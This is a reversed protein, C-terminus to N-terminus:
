PTGEQFLSCDTPTRAAAVSADALAARHTSPLNPAGSLTRLLSVEACAAAEDDDALGSAIRSDAASAHGDGLLVVAAAFHAARPSLTSAPCGVAPTVLCADARARAARDALDGCGDGACRAARDYSAVAGAYRDPGALREAAGEVLAAHSGIPGPDSSALGAVATRAADANGALVADIGVLLRRRPDEEPVNAFFAGTTGGRISDGSLAAGELSQIAGLLTADDPMPTPGTAFMAIAAVLALVAAGVGILMAKNPGSAVDDEPPGQPAPPGAEPRVAPALQTDATIVDPEPEPASAPPQANAMARTPGPEEVLEEDVASRVNTLGGSDVNPLSGPEVQTKGVEAKLEENQPGQVTLDLTDAFGGAEPLSPIQTGPTSGALANVALSMDSALVGTQGSVYAGTPLPPLEGIELDRGDLKSWDADRILDLVDDFTKTRNEVQFELCGHFLGQLGEPVSDFAEALVAGTPIRNSTQQQAPVRGTMLAYLTVGYSFIDSQPGPLGGLQEPAMFGLTGVTQGVETLRPAEPSIDLAVGFDTIKAVGDRAILVNDPKVDRHIVDAAHTARLGAAVATAYYKLYTLPLAQGRRSRSALDVLSGHHMYELLVFPYGGPLEGADYVQLVHPHNVRSTLQLEREFRDLFLKRLHGDPATCLKLAVHRTLRTDRVLYVTAQDGRGVEREVVFRTGSTGGFSSGAQIPDQGAM